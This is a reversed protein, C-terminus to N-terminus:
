RYVNSVLLVANWEFDNSMDCGDMEYTFIDQIIKNNNSSSLNTNNNIIIVVDNCINLFSGEM